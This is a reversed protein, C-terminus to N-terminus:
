KNALQEKFSKAARFKIAKHAPKTVYEVPANEDANPIRHEREPVEVVEFKGFGLANFGAENQIIAQGFLEYAERVFQEAAKKTTGRYAAAFDVMEKTSLGEVKQQTM